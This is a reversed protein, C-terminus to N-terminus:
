PSGCGRLPGLSFPPTSGASSLPCGWLPRCSILPLLPTLYTPPYSYAILPFSLVCFPAFIIEYFFFFFRRGAYSSVIQVTVSAPLPPFYRFFFLLLGSKELSLVTVAPPPCARQRFLSFFLPSTSWHSPLYSRTFYVFISGLRLLTAPIDSCFLSL